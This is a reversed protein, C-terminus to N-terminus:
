YNIFYVCHLLKKNVKVNIVPIFLLARMSWLECDTYVLRRFVAVHFLRLAFQVGVSRGFGVVVIQVVFELGRDRIHHPCGLVQAARRFRAAFSVVARAVAFIGRGRVVDVAHVHRPHHLVVSAFQRDLSELSAAVHVGLILDIWERGFHELRAAPLVLQVALIM